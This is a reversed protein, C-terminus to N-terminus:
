RAGSSYRLRSRSVVAGQAHWAALALVFMAGAAILLAQAAVGFAVAEETRVGSAVLIAAGAGAQMAAGAPAVPLVAAASSACVFAIALAFNMGFGLAALLVFVALTRLAWSVAVGLWAWAAERPPTAHEGVFGGLRFRAVIPFASIRPLSLVAAAALFGAGAVVFFGVRLWGDIRSVGLAVSALPTMAASDLLGLLFLSLAVAGISARRRRCRRVVAVRLVEDCRGPLALGGVSAAGGAAALTLVAPRHGKRFLRQWGWAKAAYAGLMVVAAVGVLWPNAHHLPWGALAFHRAVLAAVVAAVGVASINLLRKLQEL